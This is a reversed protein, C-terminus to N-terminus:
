AARRGAIGLGLLVVGLLGLSGGGSKKEYTVSVKAASTIGYAACNIGYEVVGPKSETVQRQGSTALSGTWGDGARGGTATCSEAGESTWALAVQQRVRTQPPTASLRVVPPAPEYVVSAKTEVSLPGAACTITYQVTAPTMSTVEKQGTTPCTGAWGDDGSGGSAVCQNADRANWTVTVPTGVRARNTSTSLVVTPNLPTLLYAGILEKYGSQSPRIWESMLLIQWANNVFVTLFGNDALVPELATGIGPLAALDVTAGQLHVFSRPQGAENVYRGAILGDENIELATSTQSGAPSIGFQTGDRWYAAKAAMPNIQDAGVVEDHNNWDEIVIPVEIGSSSGDKILYTSSDQKALVSRADNIRLESCYGRCPIEKWAGDAYLVGAVHEREGSTWVRTCAIPVDGHTNIGFAQVVTSLVRPDTPPTCIDASPTLFRTTGAEDLWVRAIDPPEPSLGSISSYTVRGVVQDSANFGALGWARVAYGFPAPPPDINRYSHGDYLAGVGLVHGADNIERAFDFDLKTLSGSSYLYHNRFFQIPVGHGLVDGRNNMAVPWIGLVKLDTVAYAPFDPGAALSAGPLLLIACLMPNLVRM